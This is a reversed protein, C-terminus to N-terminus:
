QGSMTWVNALAINNTNGDNLHAICVTCAGVGAISTDTSGVGVMSTDMFGVEYKSALHELWSIRSTHLSRRVECIYPYAIFPTHYAIPSLDALRRALALHDAFRHTALRCTPM